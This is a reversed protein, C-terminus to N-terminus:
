QQLWLLSCFEDAQDNTDRRLQPVSSTMMLMLALSILLNQTKFGYVSSLDVIEPKNDYIFNSPFHFVYTVRHRRPPSSCIFILMVALFIVVIFGMIDLGGDDSECCVKGM